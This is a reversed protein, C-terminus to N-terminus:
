PTEGKPSDTPWGRLTAVGHIAEIDVDIQRQQRRLAGADDPSKAIRADLTAHRTVLDALAEGLRFAEGYADATCAADAPKGTRGTNWGALESCDPEAASAAPLAFCLATILPLLPNRPNM